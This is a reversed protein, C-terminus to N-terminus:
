ETIERHMSRPGKSQPAFYFGPNNGCQEVFQELTFGHKQYYHKSPHLAYIEHDPTIFFEALYYNTFQKTGTPLLTGNDAADLISDLDLGNKRALGRLVHFYELEFSSLSSGRKPVCYNQYVIYFYIDLPVRIPKEDLLKKMTDLRFCFFGIAVDCNIGLDDMEGQFFALEEKRQSLAEEYETKTEYASPEIHFFNVCSKRWAYYKANVVLAFKEESEYFDPAVNVELCKPNRSVWEQWMQERRLINDLYKQHSEISFASLPEWGMLRCYEPDFILYSEEYYKWGEKDAIAMLAWELSPDGDACPRGLIRYFEKRDEAFGSRAMRTLEAQRERNYGKADLYKEVTVKQTIGALREAMEENARRQRERKEQSSIYWNAGLAALFHEFGM